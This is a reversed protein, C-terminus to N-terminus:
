VPDDDDDGYSFSALVGQIILWFAYVPWFAALVAIPIFAGSEHELTSIVALAVLLYMIIIIHITIM